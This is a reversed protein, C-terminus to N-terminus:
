NISPYSSPQLRAALHHYMPHPRSPDQIFCNRDWKQSNTLGCWGGLTRTWWGPLEGSEKGNCSWNAGNRAGRSERSSPLLLQFKWAELWPKTKRTLLVWEPAKWSGVWFRRLLVFSAGLVSLFKYSNWSSQARFSPLSGIYIKEVRECSPFYKGMQWLGVRDCLVLRVGPLM